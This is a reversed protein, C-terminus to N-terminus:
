RVLTVYGAENKVSEPATRARAYQVTWFYVGEPVQSQRLTGDWASAPDTTEFVLQGWRDFIKLTYRGFVMDHTPRFRDNIGDNNPSFVNPMEFDCDEVVVDRRLTDSVTRCKNWVVLEVTYTGPYSFTHSPTPDESYNNPGTDPDGFDWEFYVANASSTNSFGVEHDFCRTQDQFGASLSEPEKDHFYYQPFNILGNGKPFVNAIPNIGLPVQENELGCASDRVNPFNIVGLVHDNLSSLYIKGDPGIQMHEWGLIWTSAKWLQIESAILSDQNLNSLDYQEITRDFR